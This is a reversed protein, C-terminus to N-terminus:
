VVELASCEDLHRVANMLVMEWSGKINADMGNVFESEHFFGRKWSLIENFGENGFLKETHAHLIEGKSIAIVGTSGSPGHITLQCSDRGLCKVQILDVLRMQRLSGHFTGTGTAKPFLLRLKQELELVDVPKPIFQYKGLHRLYKDLESHSSRSMVMVQADPLVTKLDVIFELGVADPMKVDVLFANFQYQYILVNAEDITRALLPTIEPMSQHLYMRISESLRLDNELIMLYLSSASM